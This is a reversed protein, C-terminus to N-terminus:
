TTILRLGLKGAGPLARGWGWAGTNLALFARFADPSRHLARVVRHRLTPHDAVWLLLRTLVAHQRRIRRWSAPYASANGAATAEVLAAASAFALSLGEGTIPDVYGAADGVLLVRGRAVREVRVDFPGAGRVTSAPSPDPGLRAVLEPFRALLADHGGALGRRASWLFAIGVCDTGVPTVYAEVGEVWHVEVLDSWPAVHYHRRIGLRRRPGVRVDFGCAKRVHGHLGDAGVLWRARVEGRATALVVHDAGTLFTGAECGQQLEVGLEVARARMASSLATRRVGLGPGEIFDAEATTAGDVYRIGRFRRAAGAAITVGMRRLWMVGPPMIGEGCAKDVDGDRREVVVARHGAQAALIAVALGAPGGGVIAYDVPDKM